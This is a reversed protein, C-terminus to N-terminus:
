GVTTGDNHVKGALTYSTFRQHSYAIRNSEVLVNSESRALRGIIEAIKREADGPVNLASSALLKREKDLVHFISKVNQENNFEYFQEFVEATGSRSTLLRSVDQSSAMRELEATYSQLVKSLESRIEDGAYKSQ